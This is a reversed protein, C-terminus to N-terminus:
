AQGECAALIGDRLAAAGPSLTVGLPTLLGLTRHVRPSHLPRFVLDPDDEALALRPLTTVGLRARLMARLSVINSVSLHAHAIAFEADTGALLRTTGNNILTHERLDRWSREGAETALPHDRHCVLGIEDRLLPQFDLDPEPKWLSGVGFDVRRQLVRRRVNRATDDEIALQLDPHRKVFDAVVGPLRQSAFSPVCAISVRGMRGSARLAMEEAVRAHHEVLAKAQAHCHRGFPTLEVKKGKEFLPAGLREELEHIALSVAPQTRSVRRAAANFSKLDAVLVFCRLQQIKLDPLM